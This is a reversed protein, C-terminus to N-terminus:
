NGREEDVVLAALFQQLELDATLEALAVSGQLGLVRLPVIHAERIADCESTVRESRSSAMRPSRCDSAAQAAVGAGAGSSGVSYRSSLVAAVTVVTLCGM